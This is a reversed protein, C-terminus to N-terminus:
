FKFGITLALLNNGYRLRALEQPVDPSQIPYAFEAAKQIRHVYALDAFFGAVRAGLGLSLDMRQGDFTQAQQFPSSYYAFGARAQFIDMRGEIGLRINHGGTYTDRIAANVIKEYAQSGQDYFNYRMANYAVYEYDATVLGHKGMLATASLVGRWPARLSYDYQYPNDPQVFTVPNTSSQNTRYKLNETNSTLDYDMADTFASWTPTHVAAGLRLVENVVYIAGIKLNFGVGTTSLYENFSLYDFDNDPNGTADGEYFNTNRSFNYSLFNASVGLM